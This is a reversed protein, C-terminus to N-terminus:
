TRSLIALYRELDINGGSLVAVRVGPPLEADHALLGALSVAGSPELVQKLEV